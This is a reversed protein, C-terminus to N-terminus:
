SHGTRSGHGAGSRAARRHAGTARARVARDAGTERGSGARDRDRPVARSRDRPSVGFPARGPDPPTRFTRPDCGEPLKEARTRARDLGDAFDAVDTAGKTWRPLLTKLRKEAKDGCLLPARHDDLHLILRTEFTPTSPVPEIGERRARAVLDRVDAGDTDFVARVRNYEQGTRGSPRTTRSM